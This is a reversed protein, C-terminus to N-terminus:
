NQKFISKAGRFSLFRAYKKAFNRAYNVLFIYTQLIYKLLQVIKDFQSKDSDNFLACM